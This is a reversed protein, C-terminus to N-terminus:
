KLRDKELPEDYDVIFLENMKKASTDADVFLDLAESVADILNDSGVFRTLSLIQLAFRLSKEEAIKAILEIFEESIKIMNEASARYNIVEIIEKHSLPETKIILCRDLLDAPVGHPSLMESGRVKCVGKNSAMILIPAWENELARNLFSFCDLDLMHTEDIFLVGPIIKARNETIWETVKDDVQQRVENSIEGTDGHFISMFADKNSNVVDMEHLTLYHTLNEESIIEGGPLAVKPRGTSIMSEKNETEVRGLVRVISPNPLIEVLDNVTVGEKILSRCLADGATFSSDHEATKLVITGTRESVPDAPENISLSVVVGRYKRTKESVAIVTAKRFAQTLAESKNLSLSFIESSSLAIFPTKQSSTSLEAAVASALASKGSGAKGALLIARGALRGQQALKVVLKCARRADAQGSLGSNQTLSHLSSDVGTNIIHSHASAKM